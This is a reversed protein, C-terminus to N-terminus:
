NYSLAFFNIWMNQLAAAMSGLPPLMAAVSWLILTEAGQQLPWFTHAVTTASRRDVVSL